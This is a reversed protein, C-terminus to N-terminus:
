QITNATVYNFIEKLTTFYPMGSGEYEALKSIDSVKLIPRMDPCAHIVQQTEEVNDNIFWLPEHAQRLRLIPELQQEKHRDVFFMEDFFISLGSGVVKIRQFSPDGLTFLIMTQHLGRLSDLVDLSDPFLCQQLCEPTITEGFARLVTQKEYGRSALLEAHAENTYTVGSTHRIQTYTEQAVSASIGIKELPKFRDNKWAATNFITGDFDIIMM